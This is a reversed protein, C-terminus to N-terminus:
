RKEMLSAFFGDCGHIHPWLRLEGRDSFLDRRMEPFRESLNLRVMSDDQKLFRDVVAENEEKLLSCTTYLLRGGKKLVSAMSELLDLQTATMGTITRPDKKWKGEPHRRLVGTGSCPADLLIGDFIEGFFPLGSSGLDSSLLRVNGSGLRSLSDAMMRIRKHNIDAAIICGHGNSMQALHGAKGGPASCADLILGGPFPALLPAILQAGEDQITCLGDKFPGLEWPATREELLIATEALKGPVSQVGQRHLERLLDDRSIRSTNVRLTISPPRNLAQLIQSTNEVGQSSVLQKVFWRPSSNALELHRLPDEDIGPVAEPGKRSVSRLVANVLPSFRHYRSDKIIQVSEKVAAHAPIKHLYILQYAGLRIATLVPLPLVADPRDLSAKITHDLFLLNRVTGQTLETVLARDRAEHQSKRFYDERLAELANGKAEWALLIRWAARRAGESPRQKGQDRKM